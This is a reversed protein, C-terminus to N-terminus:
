PPSAGSGSLLRGRLFLRGAKERPHHQENPPLFCVRGERAARRRRRVSGDREDTRPTPQLRAPPQAPPQPRCGWRTYLARADGLPLPPVPALPGPLPVGHANLSPKVPTAAAPSEDVVTDETEDLHESM